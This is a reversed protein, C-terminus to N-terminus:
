FFMSTHCMIPAALPLADAHSISAGRLRPPRRPPHVPTGGSRPQPRDGRDERARIDFLSGRDALYPAANKKCRSNM